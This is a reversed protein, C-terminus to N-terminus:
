STTSINTDCSHQIKFIEYRNNYLDLHIRHGNGEKWKLLDTSTHLDNLTNTHTDLHEHPDAKQTQTQINITYAPAISCLPVGSSNMEYKFVSGLPKPPMRMTPCLRHNLTRM